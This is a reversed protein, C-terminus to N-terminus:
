DLIVHPIFNADRSTVLNQDERICMGVAQSAVLWCGVIQCVPAVRSVLPFSKLANGSGVRGLHRFRWHVKPMVAVYALVVIIDEFLYKAHGLHFYVPERFVLGQVLGLGQYGWHLRDCHPVM